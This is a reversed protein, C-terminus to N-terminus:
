STDIRPPAFTQLPLIEAVKRFLAPGLADLGGREQRRVIKRLWTLLGTWVLALARLRLALLTADSPDNGVGPSAVPVPRPLAPAGFERMSDFVAAHAVSEAHRLIALVRFRVECPSAAAREALEALLLLLAIIGNLM